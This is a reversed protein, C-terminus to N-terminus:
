HENRCAALVACLLHHAETARRFRSRYLSPRQRSRIRIAERILRHWHAPLCDLAYLGASIKSTIDREHFTYFQRLVGLVAWQVGYDSLLWPIRQPRRTFSAWYTHMNHHMARVLENWDVHVDLLEAPPGVVTIGRWSLVWWTVHNIDHYGSPHLAGDHVHLHPPISDELQGLDNWCLYAGELQYKSYTRKLTEHIVHLRALDSATCRRSAVVIFDIDSLHSEFAGLALSGDLYLGELFGPLSEGLQRVYEDLVCQVSPPVHTTM